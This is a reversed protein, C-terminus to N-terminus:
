KPYVVPVIKQNLPDYCIIPEKNDIIKMREICNQDTLLVERSLKNFTDKFGLEIIKHIHHDKPVSDPNNCLIYISIASHYYQHKMTGKEDWISQIDFYDLNFGTLLLCCKKKDELSFKGQEYLCSIESYLNSSTLKHKLMFTATNGM